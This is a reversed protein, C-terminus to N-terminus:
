KGYPLEKKLNNLDCLLKSIDIKLEKFLKFADAINKERGMKEIKESIEKSNIAYFYSLSGVLTHASLEIKEPNSNSIASEIDSMLEPLMIIFNDITKEAIDIMGKFNELFLNKHFSHSSENRENKEVTLLSLKEKSEIINKVLTQMAVPKLIVGDMGSTICKDIDEKLITATLALIRPRSNSEYKKYIQKSAEFGDMEPMHCDMLILDFNKKELIELVKLGNKAIEANYGLKQLYGFIVQQNAYNDEAILINLPYKESFKSNIEFLPKELQKLQPVECNSAIFNFCFTSGKALESEVWITGGMKECLGKCIALGLGSGGYKRTTSADVQSFELFLKKQEEPSLGM